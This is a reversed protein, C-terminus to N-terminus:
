ITNIAVVSIGRQKFEELERVLFKVFDGIKEYETVVITDGFKISEKMRTYYPRSFSNERRMVENYFIVDNSTISKAQLFEKIVEKQKNIEREACFEDARLYAYIM